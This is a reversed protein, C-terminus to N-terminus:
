FTPGKRILVKRLKKVMSVTVIFQGFSVKREHVETKFNEYIKSIIEQVAIMIRWERAFRIM